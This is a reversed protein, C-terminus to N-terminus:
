GTDHHKNCKYAAAAATIDIKNHFRFSAEVKLKKALVANNGSSLIDPPKFITTISLGKVCIMFQRRPKIKPVKTSQCFKNNTVAKNIHRQQPLKTSASQLSLFSVISYYLNFYFDLIIGICISFLYFM